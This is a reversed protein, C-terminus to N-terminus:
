PIKFQSKLKDKESSPIQIPVQGLAIFSVQKLRHRPSNEVTALLEPHTVRLPNPRRALTGYSHGGTVPSNMNQTSPPGQVHRVNSVPQQQQPQPQSQQSSSRPDVFYRAIPEQPRQSFQHYESPINESGNVPQQYGTHGIGNVPQAQGMSFHLSQPAVTTTTSAPPGYSFAHNGPYANSRQLSPAHNEFNYANEGFIDSPRAQQYQSAYPSQSYPEQPYTPQHSLDFHDFTPQSQPYQPYQHDQQPHPDQFAYQETAAAWGANNMLDDDVGYGGGGQYANHGHGHGDM